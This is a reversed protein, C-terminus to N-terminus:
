KTDDKNEEYNDSWDLENGCYRCFKMSDFVSAGCECTGGSNGVLKGHSWKETPIYKGKYNDILEQLLYLNDGYKNALTQNQMFVIEIMDKCEDLAEQYEQKTRM